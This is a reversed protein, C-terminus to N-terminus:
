TCLTASDCELVILGRKIEKYIRIEALPESKSTFSKVLPSVDLWGVHTYFPSQLCSPFPQVSQFILLEELIGFLPAPVSCVPSGPSSLSGPDPYCSDSTLSPLSVVPPAPPLASGPRLVQATM